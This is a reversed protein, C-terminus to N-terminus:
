RRDTTERRVAAATSSLRTRVETLGNRIRIVDLNVGAIAANLQAQTVGRSGDAATGVARQRMLNRGSTLPRWGRPAAEDAEDAEDAEFMEDAEDAEFRRWPQQM